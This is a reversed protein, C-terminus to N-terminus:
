SQHLWDRLWFENGGLLFLLIYLFSSPITLFKCSCRPWVQTLLIVPTLWGSCLAEWCEESRQQRGSTQPWDDDGLRLGRRNGRKGLLLIKFYVWPPAKPYYDMMKETYQSELYLWSGQGLVTEQSIPMNCPLHCSSPSPLLLFSTPSHSTWLNRYYVVPHCGTGPTSFHSSISLCTLAPPGLAVSQFKYKLSDLQGHPDSACFSTQASVPVSSGKAHLHCILLSFSCSSSPCLLSGGMPGQGHPLVRVSCMCIECLFFTSFLVVSPVWVPQEPFITLTAFIALLTLLNFVSIHINLKDILFDCSDNWYFILFPFWISTLQLTFQFFIFILTFYITSLFIRFTNEYHQVCSITTKDKIKFSSLHLAFKYALLSSAASLSLIWSLSFM